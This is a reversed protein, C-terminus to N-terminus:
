STPVGVGEQDYSNAAKPQSPLKIKITNGRPDGQFIPEFGAGLEACIATIRKELQQERKECYAEHRSQRKAFSENSEGYWTGVGNCNMEQIRSYTKGHRLILEALRVVERASFPKSDRGVEQAIRDVFRIRNEAEQKTM